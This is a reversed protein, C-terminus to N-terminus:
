KRRPGTPRSARNTISSSEERQKDGDNQKVKPEEQAGNASKNKASKPAAKGPSKAPSEARAPRSPAPKAPAPQARTDPKPEPKVSPQRVPAPAVAPQAKHSQVERPAQNQVPRPQESPGPKRTPPQTVPEHVVNRTNSTQPQREVTAPPEVRHTEPQTLARERRPPQEPQPQRVEVPTFVPNAKHSQPQAPMQVQVPEPQRVPTPRTATDHRDSDRPETRTAPPQPHPTAVPPKEVQHLERQPIPRVPAPQVHAPPEVKRGGPLENNRRRAVEETEERHRLERVPRANLKRGSLREVVDPRPGENIVAHNVLRVNTINVTKNIVTTNNVIVTQQRVPELMRREEVFVLGRPTSVNQQVTVVGSANIRASPPLPAWGIYGAGQRWSVWAPAWQTQPVWVWGFQVTWDWRGYHYTAWGWPEDSAWYWGADTREWHGNSYPSWGVQVRAPKWCRGYDAVVVWEGYPNLPEYFDSDSHIVVVPTEAPAVAVTPPPPAMHIVRRPPREVYTTCGALAIVLTSCVVFGVKGFSRNTRKM